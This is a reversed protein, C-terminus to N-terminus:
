SSVAHRYGVTAFRRRRQTDPVDDSSFATVGLISQAAPSWVVQLVNADLLLTAMQAVWFEVVDDVFTHVWRGNHTATDILGIVPSPLYMRGWHRRSATQLTLTTSVQPPLMAGDTTGAVGVPTVRFVPNPEVVETGANYWRIEVFTTTTPYHAKMATWWALIAAETAEYEDDGWGGDFVGDLTIAWYASTENIDRTSGPSETPRSFVLTTKKIDIPDVEQSSTFQGLGGHLVWYEALKYVVFRVFVGM